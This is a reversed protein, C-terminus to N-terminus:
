KRVLDFFYKNTDKKDVYLTVNGNIVHFKLTTQDLPFTQFFRKGNFLSENKFFLVSQITEVREVPTYYAGISSGVLSGALLYDSNDQEVERLYSSDKFECNDFEVAYSKANLKAETFRRQSETADIPVTKQKPRLLLYIVYIFTAVAGLILILGPM